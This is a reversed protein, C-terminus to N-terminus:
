GSRGATSRQVSRRAKSVSTKGSGSEGVLGLTDGPAVDFSIGDIARVLGQKTPFCKVLNDVRLISNPMAM